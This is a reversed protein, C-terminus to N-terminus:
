GCADGGSDLTRCGCRPPAVRQGKFFVRHSALIEPDRGEWTLYWRKNKKTKKKESERTIWLAPATLPARVRKIRTGSMGTCWYFGPQGPSFEFLRASRETTPPAHIFGHSVFQFPLLQFIFFFFLLFFLHTREWKKKDLPQIVCQPKPRAAAQLLKWSWRWRWGMGPRATLATRHLRKESRIRKM